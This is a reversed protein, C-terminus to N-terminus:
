DAPQVTMRPVGPIQHGILKYTKGGKALEYDFTRHTLPNTTLLRNHLAALSSPLHGHKRRYLELALAIRCCRIRERVNVIGELGMGASLDGMTKLFALLGPAEKIKKWGPIDQVPPVDSAPEAKVWRSEPLDFIRAEIRGQKRYARCLIRVGEPDNNVFDEIKKADAANQAFDKAKFPKTTLTAVGEERSNRALRKLEQHSTLNRALLADLKHIRSTTLHRAEIAPVTVFISQLAGQMLLEILDCSGQNLGFRLGTDMWLYAQQENGSQAEQRAIKGIAKAFFRDFSDGPRFDEFTHRKLGDSAPFRNGKRLLPYAKSLISRQDTTRLYRDAMDHDQADVPVLKAAELYWYRGDKQPLKPWNPHPYPQGHALCPLLAV